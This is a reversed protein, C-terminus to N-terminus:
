FCVCFWWLLLLLLAQALASKLVFLCLLVMVVFCFVCTRGLVYLISVYKGTGEHGSSLPTCLHQHLFVLIQVLFNSIFDLAFLLVSVCNSVHGQINQVVCHDLCVSESDISFGEVALYVCFTKRKLYCSERWLTLLCFM